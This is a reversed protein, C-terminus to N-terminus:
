PRDRSGALLLGSWPGHALFSKNGACCRHQAPAELLPHTGATGRPRLLYLWVKLECLLRGLERRDTGTAFSHGGHVRARARCSASAARGDGLVANCDLSVSSIAERM